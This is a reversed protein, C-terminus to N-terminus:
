GTNITTNHMSEGYQQKNLKNLEKFMTYTAINVSRHHQKKKNNTKKKERELVHM